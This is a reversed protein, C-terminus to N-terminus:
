NRGTYISSTTSYEMFAICNSSEVRKETFVALFVGGSGTIIYSRYPPM